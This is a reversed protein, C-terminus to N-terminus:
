RAFYRAVRNASDPHFSSFGTYINLERLEEAFAQHGVSKKGLTFLYCYFLYGDRSLGATAFYLATLWAKHPVNTQKAVERSMTGATTSIFPTHFYFPEGNDPEYYHNQHKMLNEETLQEPIQSPDIKGLKRLWNSYIGKKLIRQAETQDIDGIGKIVKQIIM